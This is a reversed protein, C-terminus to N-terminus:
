LTGVNYNLIFNLGTHVLHQNVFITQKINSEFFGSDGGCFIIKLNSFRQKYHFIMGNIEFIVSNLVGGSISEETSKGPLVIPQRNSLLPLRSTFTNLAKFRMEIGPSIIGGEYGYELSVIDATICTGADIILLDSDPFHSYGGVAAALRDMGLTKPTHYSNRIPLKTQPSLEMSKLGNSILLDRFSQSNNVSSIISNEPYYKEILEILNEESHIERVEVLASGEFIGAKTRTNGSDITLNM